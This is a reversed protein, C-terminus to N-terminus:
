HSSFDWCALGAPCKQLWLPCLGRSCGGCFGQRSGRSARWKSRPLTFYGQPSPDWCKAVTLVIPSCLFLPFSPAQLRPAPRATPQSLVAVSAGRRGCGFPGRTLGGRKPFLVWGPKHVIERLVRVADDNSMNEFNIDNVQSTPPSLSLSSIM